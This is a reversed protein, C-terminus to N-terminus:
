IRLATVADECMKKSQDEASSGVLSDSVDWGVGEVTPFLPTHAPTGTPAKYVDVPSRQTRSTKTCLCPTELIQHSSACPTIEDM